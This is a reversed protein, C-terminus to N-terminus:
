ADDIQIGMRECYDDLKDVMEKRLWDLWDFSICAGDMCTTVVLDGSLHLEFRLEDDAYVAHPYKKKRHEIFLDYDCEEGIYALRNM